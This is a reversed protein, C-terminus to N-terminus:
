QAEQGARHEKLDTANPFENQHQNNFKCIDKNHFHWPKGEEIICIKQDCGIGHLNGKFRQLNKKIYLGLSLDGLQLKLLAPSSTSQKQVIGNRLVLLNECSQVYKLKFFYFKCM